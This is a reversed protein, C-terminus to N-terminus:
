KVAPWAEPLCDKPNLFTIIGPVAEKIEFCLVTVSHATCIDRLVSEQLTQGEKLEIFGNRHQQDIRVNKVMPLASIDQALLGYQERSEIGSYVFQARQQTQSFLEHNAGVSLAIFFSLALIKNV